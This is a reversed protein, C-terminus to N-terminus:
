AAATTETYGRSSGAAAWGALASWLAATDAGSRGCYPDVLYPRNRDTIGFQLHISHIVKSPSILNHYVFHRYAEM